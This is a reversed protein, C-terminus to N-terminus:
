RDEDLEDNDMDVWPMDDDVDMHTLLECQCFPCFTPTYTENHHIQMIAGCEECSVDDLIFSMPM